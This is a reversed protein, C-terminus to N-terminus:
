KTSAQQKTPHQPNNLNYTTHAKEFQQEIEDTDHSDMGVAHYIQQQAQHHQQPKSSDQHQHSM